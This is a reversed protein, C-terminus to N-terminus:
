ESKGIAKMIADVWEQEVGLYDWSKKSAKKIDYVKQAVGTSGLGIALLRAIREKASGESPVSLLPDPANRVTHHNAPPMPRSPKDAKAKEVATPATPDPIGLRDWGVKAAKKFALLTDLAFAKTEETSANQWKQYISAAQEKRSTAAKTVEEVQAPVVPEDKPPENTEPITEAEVPADPTLIPAPEEHQAYEKVIVGAGKQGTIRVEHTKRIHNGHLADALMRKGEDNDTIPRNQKLLQYLHHPLEMLIHYGCVRMKNADYTPVTIVDEPALKALVCVNGSFERIYGRRAVHLGNSCENNRQHDVLSPDMCVYAGVWQQVNGTHCDKYVAEKKVPNRTYYNLVKYIVISGDDAIPLDAREMFKLLDEVSHSRTEIVTSLRELFKEVGQTSGLKAARAFQSKILEMGPIVKDNVVAIITDEAKEDPHSSDTRGDIAMPRQKLIGEENYKDSTVPVAHAIIEDIASMTQAVKTEPVQVVPEFTEPQDDQPIVQSLVPITDDAVPATTVSVPTAPAATVSPSQPVVGVQHPIVPETNPAKELLSKLKAKAVRFFKVVGSQQQFDAFTNEGEEEINVDAFGHVTLLPTAVELIRRLRPDGQPITVTSGDEKYMTLKTTDVVAAIIRITKM